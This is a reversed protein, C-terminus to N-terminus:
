RINRSWEPPLDRVTVDANTGVLKRFVDKPAFRRLDKLQKDNLVGDECCLRFVETVLKKYTEFKAANNVVAFLPPYKNSDIAVDPNRRLKEFTMLAIRLAEDKRKPSISTSARNCVKLVTGYSQTNPALSEEGEKGRDEMYLVMNYARPAKDPIRSVALTNMLANYTINSPKINSYGKGQMSQMLNFTRVANDYAKEDGSKAWANIVSTFSIDTPLCDERGGEHLKLIHNLIAEARQAAGKEGSKAWADIVATFSITDPRCEERGGENLKLMHHLIAEARQAAGKERSKAWANIVANYSVTDPCADEIGQRCLEEMKELLAEARQPADAYKSRAWADIVSNFCIANPQCEGQGSEQLKLMHILIAEARQAAGKERSKAWANIVANYSITDPCVGEHDQQNLQEMHQLITEARKPAERRGSKAWANIVSNYLITGPKVKENGSSWLKELRLLVAEADQPEGIKAFADVVMAYSKSTPSLSPDQTYAEEVFSLLDAAKKAFTTDPRKGGRRAQEAAKESLLRYSNLAGQSFDQRIDIGSGGALRRKVYDRVMRDARDADKANHHTVFPDFGDDGLLSAETTSSLLRAELGAAHRREVGFSSQPHCINAPQPIRTIRAASSAVAKSSCQLAATSSSRVCTPNKQQDPSFSSSPAFSSGIGRSRAAVGRAVVEERFVLRACRLTMEQRVM